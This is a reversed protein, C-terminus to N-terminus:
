GSRRARRCQECQCNRRLFDWSYIGSAHGDNWRFVVAYRGAPEVGDPRPPEEYLPLLSPTASAPREGPERGAAVRAEHCTACPCADRLWRFTWSSSHGDKWDIEMGTGESKHVRVKAPDVAARPLAPLDARRADREDMIRIGEHSM